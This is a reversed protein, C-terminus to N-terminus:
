IFILRFFVLASLYSHAPFLVLSPVLLPTPQRSRIFHSLPIFPRSSLDLPVLGENDLSYGFDFWCLHVHLFFLLMFDDYLSVSTNSVLSICVIPDPRDHTRLRELPTCTHDGMVIMQWRLTWCSYTLLFITIRDALYSSIIKSRLTVVNKELTEHTRGSGWM